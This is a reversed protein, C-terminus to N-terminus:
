FTNNKILDFQAYWFSEAYFKQLKNKDFQKFYEKIENIMNSDDLTITLNDRKFSFHNNEHVWVWM